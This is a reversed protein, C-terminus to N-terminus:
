SVTAQPMASDLESMDDALGAACRIEAIARIM